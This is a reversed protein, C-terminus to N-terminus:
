QVTQMRIVDPGFYDLIGNVFVTWELGSNKLVDQAKFCDKLQPLVSLARSAALTSITQKKGKRSYSVGFPLMYCTRKTYVEKNRKSKISADILNLQSKALSDGEAPFTSIVTHIKRNELVSAM